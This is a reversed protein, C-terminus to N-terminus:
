SATEPRADPAYSAASASAPVAGRASVREGPSVLLSYIVPVVILTLLTASLLGGIVAVALPARLDAGAGWGLAMPTLGLVTTVTTMVIPRLRLRGAELIAVRKTAGAARQQNIFDVKIIADNVVIGILIVMGIGSMANIGGGAIGLAMVAGILALPVSALVVVPQIISEFQAALILFVLFLALTFAFGLSRFSERMEENQGGVTMATLTPLRVDALVAEVDAVARGLGGSRVDALVQVTRNQDLRRVEVPGFGETVNVLEGIPVGQHRLLLVDSLRSRDAEPLSVRIDIKTSFETYPRSTEVGRLYSEIADAVERVTFGFRATAARDVEIELEPQVLQLDIRPDAVREVGGMLGAVQEAVVILSDLEEGRIRVALDANGTGLARGLSTARGREVSVAQPDVNLEPLSARFAEIVTRDDAGSALRVELAASNLGSLDRTALEADRARGVRTFVAGVGDLAQLGAELREAVASTEELPTGVLLTLEVRFSGEDVDPMLGMPLTMGVLAALVLSGLAIGVVAARHELAWELTREYREAFRVFGRDFADLGPRVLRNTARGAVRGIDGLTLRLSQGVFRAGRGVHRPVSRVARWARGVRSGKGAIEAGAEDPGALAPHTVRFGAFRAAMVPIVTLAVLLSALLSFAVTLSLDAFLAGAVGEVYLVPGFVAITTLTSATIAGTVESAGVSASRDAELEGEERHRFINELVVISNDVLMGVGLALGGLSMVNLSVDFLYCLSFAALVSIPISLGIAVPYRPDGLFLFLVVFALLGGLMLASVVNSIADSIFQAQDSAVEITVSPFEEGLQALVENVQHAVRVTNTGSEKYVLLGIAPEGNFRAITEREAEGERVAAVDRLRVVGGQEPRAVTVEGLDGVSRFEGLTRLSFRFRGRRITGGPASYNAADLAGTVDALSVGHEALLRPDVEVQIEREPDGTIAALAVGDLQELRRKFVADALDRLDGLPAGTVALSMIPDNTPDSTLIVPREASEPLNASLNDLRERVHLMAFEMDTGWYFQLRVLSQGERSRSDISRAGPVRSLVSEVQETVLREVEAPGADPYETWVSLTPFSVDPLLDIPLRAFSVVGLVGIAVFLMSTAVPRRISLNSLAM